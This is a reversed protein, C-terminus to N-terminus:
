PIRYTVEMGETELKSCAENLYAEVLQQVEGPQKTSTISFAVTLAYYYEEIEHEAKM